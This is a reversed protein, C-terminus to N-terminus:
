EGGHKKRLYDETSMIAPMAGHPMTAMLQQLDANDNQEPAANGESAPKTKVGLASAIRALQIHAPPCDRWYAQMAELRPLDFRHAVEDLAIGTSASLHAYLGM